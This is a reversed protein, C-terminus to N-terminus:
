LPDLADVAARVSARLDSRCGPHFIPGRTDTLLTRARAVGQASVPGPALLKGILECLERSSAQIRGRCVPVSLNRGAAADLIRQATAATERRSRTRVLVQARLALGMRADPRAGNALETDLRDALVRAAARQWLTATRAVPANTDDELIVLM